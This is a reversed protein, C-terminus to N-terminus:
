ADVLPVYIEAVVTAGLVAKLPGRLFVRLLEATRVEHESRRRIGPHPFCSARNAIIRTFTYISRCTGVPPVEGWYIV